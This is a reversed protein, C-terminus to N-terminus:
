VYRKAMREWQALGAQKFGAAKIFTRMSVTKSNKMFEFIEEKDKLSMDIPELFPLLTKIRQMLTADDPNVDILISRSRIAGDPDAKDKPLNSIFIVRGTFNFYSPYMGSELMNLEGEPDDEYEKPDYLKSSMKLYSIKRVKKTDLAAKLINRGSEDRFVADADDFVLVKSNFQFLKRYMVATSVSGSVYAFDEDDQLGAKKLAELVTYTKGTGARGSIFLSNFMGAAVSSSIDYIDKLTEDLFKAKDELTMKNKQEAPQTSASMVWQGRKVKYIQSQPVGFAMSVEKVSGGKKLAAEVQKVEANALKKSAENLSEVTMSSVQLLYDPETILKVFEGLLAVINFQTTTM